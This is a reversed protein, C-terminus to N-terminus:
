HLYCCKQMITNDFYEHFCREHMFSTRTISFSMLLYVIRLNLIQSFMRHARLLYYDCDYNRKLSAIM